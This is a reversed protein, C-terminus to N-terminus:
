EAKTARCKYRQRHGPPIVWRRRQAPLHQQRKRREASWGARNAEVEQHVPYTEASVTGWLATLCHCTLLPAGWLFLWDQREM